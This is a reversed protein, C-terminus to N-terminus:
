SLAPSCEVASRYTAPWLGAQPVQELGPDRRLLFIQPV